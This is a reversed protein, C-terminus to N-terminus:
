DFIYAIGAGVITVHTSVEMMGGIRELELTTTFKMHIVMSGNFQEWDMTSMLSTSVKMHIDMTGESREGEM